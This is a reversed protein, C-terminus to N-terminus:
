SADLRTYYLRSVDEKGSVEFREGEETTSRELLNSPGWPRRQLRETVEAPRKSILPEPRLQEM